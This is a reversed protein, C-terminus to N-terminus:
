SRLIHCNNNPNKHGKIKKGQLDPRGDVWFFLTDSDRDGADDKSVEIKAGSERSMAKISEGGRGIIMGRDYSFILDDLSFGPFVFSFLSVYLFM